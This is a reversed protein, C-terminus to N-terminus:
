RPMLCALAIVKPEGTFSDLTNFLPQKQMDLTNLMVENSIDLFGWPSNAVPLFLVSDSRM